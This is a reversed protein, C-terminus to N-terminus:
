EYKTLAAQQATREKPVREGRVKRKREGESCKVAQGM